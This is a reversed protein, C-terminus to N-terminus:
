GDATEAPSSRMSPHAGGRACDMQSETFIPDLYIQQAIAMPASIARCPPMWLLSILLLIPFCIIQAIVGHRGGKAIFTIYRFPARHILSLLPM